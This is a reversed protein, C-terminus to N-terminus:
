ADSVERGMPVLERSLFRKPRHTAMTAALERPGNDRLIEFAEEAKALVEAPVEHLYGSVMVGSRSASAVAEGGLEYADVSRYWRLVLGDMITPFAVCVLTAM